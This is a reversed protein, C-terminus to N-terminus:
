RPMAPLSTPISGVASKATALGSKLQDIRPGYEPPLKAKMGELEAIGKEALEWKHDKIYTGIDAILKEAAAKAADATSAAPAPAPAPSTAVPAANDGCGALAITMVTGTALTKWDM